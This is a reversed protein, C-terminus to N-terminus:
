KKILEKFDGSSIEGAQAQALLRKAFVVWDKFEQEAGARNKLNRQKRANHTKYATRYILLLDDGQIKASYGLERCMKGNKQVRSCYLEDSRNVSVFYQGCNRCKRIKTNSLILMQFCRVCVKYLDEPKRLIFTDVFEVKKSRVIDALQGLGIPQAKGSLLTRFDMNSAATQRISDASPPELRSRHVTKGLPPVYLEQLDLVGSLQTHCMFRSDFFSQFLFARQLADLGTLADPQNADLCAALACELSDLISLYADLWRIDSQIQDCISDWCSEEEMLRDVEDYSDILYASPHICVHSYNDYDRWLSLPGITAAWWPHVERVQLYMQLIDGLYVPVLHHDFTQTQVFQFLTKMEAVLPPLEALSVLIFDIMHQGMAAESHSTCVFEDADKGKQIYVDMNEKSMNNTFVMHVYTELPTMEKKPGM